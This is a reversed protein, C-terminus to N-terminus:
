ILPEGLPLTTVVRTGQGPSADISLEGGLLYVRERMGILGGTTAHQWVAFQDFGRGRDEILVCIHHFDALLFVDVTDVGAHRAVNTLAEQVIRYVAMEIQPNFRIDSNKHRFFVRIHSQSTYREFYWELTPLLGLDDIMPPRLDLSIGRVRQLLENIVARTEMIHMSVHPSRAVMDLVLKIGTLAQGIEDHLERALLRREQEQVEVLRQSLMHLQQESAQLAVLTQQHEALIHELEAVRQQLRANEQQLTVATEIAPPM